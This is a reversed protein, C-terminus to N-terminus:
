PFVYFIKYNVSLQVQLIASLVHTSIKDVHLSLWSGRLYRRIGYVTMDESLRTKSWDELIPKLTNLIDKNLENYTNVGNGGFIMHNYKEEPFILKKSTQDFHEFTNLM